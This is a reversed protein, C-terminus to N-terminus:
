RDGQFKIDHMPSRGATEKSVLVAGARLVSQKGYSTRNAIAIAISSKSEPKDV